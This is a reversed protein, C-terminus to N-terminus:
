VAPYPLSTANRKIPRQSHLWARLSNEPCAAVGARRIAKAPDQSRMDRGGVTSSTSVHVLLFRDLVHRRRGSSCGLHRCPELPNKPGLSALFQRDLETQWAQSFVGATEASFTVELRIKMEDALEEALRLVDERPVALPEPREWFCSDGFIEMDLDRAMMEWDLYGSRSREKVLIRGARGGQLKFKSFLKM